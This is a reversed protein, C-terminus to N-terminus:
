NAPRLAVSVACWASNASDSGSFTFAAPNVAGSVWPATHGMGVTHDEGTGNGSATLFVLLDSSSFTQSGQGHSGLGVAVVIAGVTVPTISPPNALLSNASQATVAAVDQPTSSSVGRFVKICGAKRNTTGGSTGLTVDTDAASLHKLFVGLEAGDTEAQYLDAIETYGTTTAIDRNIGGINRFGWGIVICDGIAPAAGLGGTLDTLSVTSTGTSGVVDFTKGGVYQIGSSLGALAAGGIGPLVLGLAPPPLLDRASRVFAPRPPVWLAPSSDPLYLPM